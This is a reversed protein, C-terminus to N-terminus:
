DGFDEVGLSLIGQPAAPLAHSASSTLSPKGKCTPFDDSIMKIPLAEGSFMTPVRGLGALELGGHLQQGGPLGKAGPSWKRQWSHKEVWDMPILSIVVIVM